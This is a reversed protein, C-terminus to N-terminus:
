NYQIFVLSVPIWQRLWVNQNPPAWIPFINTINKQHRLPSLTM